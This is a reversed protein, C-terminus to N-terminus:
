DLSMKKTTQAIIREFLILGSRYSRVLVAVRGLYSLDSKEIAPCSIAGLVSGIRGLNGPSRGLNLFNTEMNAVLVREPKNIKGQHIKCSILVRLYVFRHSSHPRNLLITTFAVFRVDVDAM